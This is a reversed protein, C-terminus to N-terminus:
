EADGDTGNILPNGRRWVRLAQSRKVRACVGDRFLLTLKSIRRANLAAYLEHLCSALLDDDDGSAPAVAVFGAVAVELCADISGPWDEAVGTKSMWYGTLLPDAAFLPPHPVTTQEPAQGGGWLWLANVSQLGQNEREVNVEHDHLSMEIESSLKRYKAAGDGAPLFDDPQRRDISYASLAATTISEQATIYANSRIRAFGFDGDKALSQQLHDILPRLDSPPMADGYLAHLVLHDLRPELHVPDAGAIWAAPREGTQGWFRLAAMGEGPCAMGVEALVSALMETPGAISSLEARALWNRLGSDQLRGGVPPLVVVAASKDYSTTVIIAM